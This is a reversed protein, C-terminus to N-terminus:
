EWTDGYNALDALIIANVAAKTWEEAQEHRWHSDKYCAVTGEPDKRYMERWGMIGRLKTPDDGSVLGDTLVQVIDQLVEAPVTTIRPRAKEVPRPPPLLCVGSLDVNPTEVYGPQLRPTGGAGIYPEVDGPEFWWASGDVLRVYPRTADDKEVTGTCGLVRVYGVGPPHDVVVKVVDGVAPRWEAKEWVRANYDEHTMFFLSRGVRVSVHDRTASFTVEALPVTEQANHSAPTFTAVGNEIVLRDGWAETKDFRM